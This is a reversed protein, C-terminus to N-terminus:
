FKVSVAQATQCTSHDILIILVHHAIMEKVRIYGASGYPLLCYANVLVKNKSLM